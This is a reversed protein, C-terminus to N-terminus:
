GERVSLVPVPSRRLMKQACSGIITDILNSRGKTGMVLLDPKREEIVELLTEFPVGVRVLSDTHLDECGADAILERMSEARDERYAQMYKKFEFGPYRTAVIQMMDVDRQNIVNVLLLDAKLNRALLAAYKTSPLAYDSFDVAVMILEIAPM